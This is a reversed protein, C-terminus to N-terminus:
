SHASDGMQPPGNLVLSLGGRDGSSDGGAGGEPKRVPLTDLVELLQQGAKMLGPGDGAAAARDVLEAYRNALVARVEHESTMRREDRAERLAAQM